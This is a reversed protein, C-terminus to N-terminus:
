SKGLEKDLLYDDTMFYKKGEHEKINGMFEHYYMRLMQKSKSHLYRTFYIVLKKITKRM